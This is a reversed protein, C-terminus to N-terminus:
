KVRQIAICLERVRSKISLVRLHSWENSLQQFVSISAARTWVMDPNPLSPKQPSLFVPSGLSFGRLLALVLLLILRCSVVLVPISGPDCLHSQPSRKDM